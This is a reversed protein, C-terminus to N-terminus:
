VEKNQNVRLWKWLNKSCKNCLDIHISGKLVVISEDFLSNKYFIKKCIDCKYATM